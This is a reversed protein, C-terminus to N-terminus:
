MRANSELWCSSGRCERGSPAPRVCALPGLADEEHTEDESIEGRAPRREHRVAKRLLYPFHLEVEDVMNGRCENVIRATAM